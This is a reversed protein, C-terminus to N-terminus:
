SSMHWKLLSKDQEKTVNISDNSNLLQFMNVKKVRASRLVPPMLSSHFYACAVRTLPCVGLAFEPSEMSTDQDLSETSCRSLASMPVSPFVSIAGIYTKLHLDDLCVLPAAVSPALEMAASAEVAVSVLTTANDGGPSADVTDMPVASPIHTSTLACVSAMASSTNSVADHTLSNMVTSSDGSIDLMPTPSFAVAAPELDFFGREPVVSVTVKSSALTATPTPASMSGTVARSPCQTSCTAPSMAALGTGHSAAMGRDNSLRLTARRNISAETTTAAPMGSTTAVVNHVGVARAHRREKIEECIRQRSGDTYARM